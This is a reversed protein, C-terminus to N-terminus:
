RLITEFDGGIRRLSKVLRKDYIVYVLAVEILQLQKGDGSCSLVSLPKEKHKYRKTERKERQERQERRRKDQAVKQDIKSWKPRM